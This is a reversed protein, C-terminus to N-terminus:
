RRAAQSNAPPNFGPRAQGVEPRGCRLVVAFDSAQERLLHLPSAAILADAAQVLDTRAPVVFDVDVAPKMGSDPYSGLAIALDKTLVANIGLDALIRQVLIANHGLLLNRGRTQRYFGAVRPIASHSLGLTRLRTHLAPLLRLADDSLEDAVMSNLIHIISPEDPQDDLLAHLILADQCPPPSWDSLSRALRHEPQTRSTPNM